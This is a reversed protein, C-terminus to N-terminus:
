LILHPNLTLTLTQTLTLLFLLLRRILSKLREGSDVQILLRSVKRVHEDPLPSLAFPDRQALTGICSLPSGICSM